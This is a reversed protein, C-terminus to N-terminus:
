REAARQSEFASRDKPHSCVANMMLERILFPIGVRRTISFPPRMHAPDKRSSGHMVVCCRQGAVDRIEGSVPKMYPDGLIVVQRDYGKAQQQQDTTSNGKQQPADKQACNDSQM